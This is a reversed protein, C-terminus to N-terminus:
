LGHSAAWDHDDVFSRAYSIGPRHRRHRNRQGFAVVPDDTIGKGALRHQSGHHYPQHQVGHRPEFDRATGTAGGLGIGIDGDTEWTADAVRVSGISGAGSGVFDPTPHKTRVTAGRVIELTAESPQVTGDVSFSGGVQVSKATLLSTGGITGTGRAIRLEDVDGTSLEDLSFGGGQVDIDGAVLSSQGGIKLSGALITSHDIRLASKDTVDFTGGQLTASGIMMTANTHLLISSADGSMSLGGFAVDAKLLDLRGTGGESGVIASSVYLKPPADPLLAGTIIQGFSGPGIGVLLHSTDLGGYLVISGQGGNQGVITEATESANGVGLYGDISMGVLVNPDGAVGVRLGAVSFNGTEVSRAANESNTNVIITDDDTPTRNEDWNTPDGWESTHSGNWNLEQAAAPTALGALMTSALLASAATLHRRCSLSPVHPM